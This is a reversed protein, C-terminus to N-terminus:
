VTIISSEEKKRQEKAFEEVPCDKGDTRKFIITPWTERLGVENGCTKISCKHIYVQKRQDVGIPVLYGLSCKQCKAYVKIAKVEVQETKM